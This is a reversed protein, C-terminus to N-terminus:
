PGAHRKLLGSIISLLRDVVLPKGLHASFGAERAAAIDQERGLGTVAVAPMTSYRPMKRVERLLGYGDMDPMSIDSVLLEVDERGLIDLAQRASTAGFTEAGYMQLLSQMMMVADEVDDVLLIRLGAIDLQADALTGVEHCDQEVLPLWVTFRAGKGVGESYAEIRGGHLSVLERVLALGIGLGGKARTTVSNAQGFMEFVKALSGPAIGQGSDVVDLRMMGADAGLNVAIEGGQPTFKIANSLLNMAIQEFRVADAMVVLSDDISTKFSLGQASPDALAVDVIARVVKSAQVPTVSLAMKGTRVRSMDLLDEIIKAQSVVSTRITEACRVALSSARVEPIRALVDANIGIMNLPQRLEHSMIALFQDKVAVAHEAGTRERHEHSFAADRESMLRLRQTEDRAIKAYGYAAREGLPNTVGSAYFRSGDKRLHWREDESRGDDRARRMEQERAGRERDEPTYLAELSQGLMEAETYGFLREAGKNWSTAHGEADLSIIAYDHTSEAVMQMRAEHARAQEEAQRRESIDFFTMIAGEIRDETTRYPLLRVIYWRGDYSRVEREVPRLTAFTASVDDALQDYDLRHTLDLLSRGLDSAIVSFIDTARPTFRKIRMGSDVFVTAIDTSAILNNLDDNAKGTEEVKVKLEYNVTILEENVSQLEEKSTELEETASRLEENIAQLEENSARLEETSIESHEITEQLQEKTRQLETELQTLVMDDRSAGAPVPAVEPSVENFVVLMFNESSDEDRFPSVKMGIIVSRGQLEISIHRCDIATNGQQAQYLASRLELRLEPMVLALVNRSPEGAGMRLFQGARQSMHVINAERDLVLSPPAALALARQHVEAYSFQRRPPPYLVSEPLRSVHSPVQTGSSMTRSTPRARYIRNKKDVPVFFDAVSEASESSGLFLYGGPKLAFHFMELVRIQVERNLYILLNRCSVMDLRSFPPDRLVNHSAFLIRDRIAKRINYRDDDKTFHRRLRSPAIDTLISAPYVGSRARAIADNDIDSAFIQCAPPHAMEEAHDALLMALSYAEEGTSCAAVWVRVEDGAGKDKFLEPIIDRELAEFAERDRFFNTVGILMDDLLAHCERPDTELLSCYEPLTHVARVQMRREIRRLVTARKYQKFDHGTRNLLLFVVRQLAEEALQVDDQRPLHAIPGEGDGTPPLEIIRANEWLDILKQPMETVPLVFDVIGTGIAAGPMGDHEADAPLQVITVGGQEKIRKLGVAGDSGTGSLVIAVSRERHVEALTRFFLDIAIHSGRPRELPKLSLFSDIMTLHQNPPIVYVHNAEIQVPKLVQIVPMRTARQLVQDTTSAHKPSLHLIIVFAMGSNQPMNEFFRQLAPLGGASAGIGVVPFQIASPVVGPETPPPNPSDATDHM